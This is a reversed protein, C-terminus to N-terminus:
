RHIVTFLDETTRSTVFVDDEEEVISDATKDSAFSKEESGSELPSGAPPFSFAATFQGTCAGPVRM